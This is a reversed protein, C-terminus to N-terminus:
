NFLRIKFTLHSYYPFKYSNIDGAGGGVIQKESKILIGKKNYYDMYLTRYRILENGFRDAESESVHKQDQFLKRFYCETCTQSIHDKVLYENDGYQNERYRLSSRDVDNGTNKKMKVNVRIEKEQTNSKDEIIYSIIEVCDNEPNIISPLALGDSLCILISEDLGSKYIKKQQSTVIRFKGHDIEFAKLDFVFEDAMDSWTGTILIDSNEM